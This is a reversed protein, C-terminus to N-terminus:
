TSIDIIMIIHNGHRQLLQLLRWSKDDKNWKWNDDKTENWTVGKQKWDHALISGLNEWWVVGPDLVKVM